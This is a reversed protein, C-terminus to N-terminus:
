ESCTKQTVDCDQELWFSKTKLLEVYFGLIQCMCTNYLWLKNNCFIYFFYGSYCSFFRPLFFVYRNSTQTKGLQEDRREYWDHLEKKAKERWEEIQEKEESDM